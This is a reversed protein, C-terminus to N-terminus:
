ILHGENKYSLIRYDDWKFKPKNTSSYINTERASFCQRNESIQNM